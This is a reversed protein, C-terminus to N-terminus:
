NGSSSRVASQMQKVTQAAHKEAAPSITSIVAGTISLVAATLAVWNVTVAGEESAKHHRWARWLAQRWGAGSEWTGM